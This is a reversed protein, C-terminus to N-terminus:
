EEDDADDGETWEDADSWDCRFILTRTIGQLDQRTRELMWGSGVALATV